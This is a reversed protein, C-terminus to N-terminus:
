LIICMLTFICFPAYAICLIKVFTHGANKENHCNIMKKIAFILYIWVAATLFLFMLFATSTLIIKM